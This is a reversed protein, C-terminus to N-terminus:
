ARGAERPQQELTSVDEPDGPADVPRPAAGHGLPRREREDARLEELARVPHDRGRGRRRDRRDARPPECAETAGDPAGPGRPGPPGAGETGGETPPRRPRDA